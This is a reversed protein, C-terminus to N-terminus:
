YVDTQFRKERKLNKVYKEAQEESVGGQTQIIDLLAKNVDKAMYKMDGCLYFHAGNELWDFVEKQQEKLKHQVYVKEEQDRSFAVDIKTLIENNLLKQWETQYLFDSNFRRDGFFLWSEGKIGLSERHQMFARYPAVGTGAGVM